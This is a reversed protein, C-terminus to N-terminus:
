LRLLNEELIKRGLLKRKAQDTLQPYGDGECVDQAITADRFPTWRRSHSGSRPRRGTTSRTKGVRSSFSAASRPSGRPSRVVFNAGVRGDRFFPYSGIAVGEFRKEAQGLLDAVESEAVWCGVSKSVVPRGGELTGTLADLMGATIHPVGAMIFLNGHRIGPAAILPIRAYAQGFDEGLRTNAIHDTMWLAVEAIRAPFEDIEIGFFQDVNLRTLRAPDTEGGRGTRAYREKILERELERLERYAVVLDDWFTSKDPYAEDSIVAPGGMLNAMGPGPITIKPITTTACDHLFEYADVFIPHDRGISGMARVPSSVGGPM